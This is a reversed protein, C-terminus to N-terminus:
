LGAEKRFWKQAKKRGLSYQVIEVQLPLSRGRIKSKEPGLYPYGYNASYDGGDEEGDPQKVVDTLVNKHAEDDHDGTDDPAYFKAETIWANLTIQGGWASVLSVSELTLRVLSATSGEFDSGFSHKLELRNSGPGSGTSYILEAGAIMLLTRQSNDLWAEASRVLTIRGSSGVGEAPDQIMIPEKRVRRKPADMDRYPEVLDEVIKRQFSVFGEEANTRSVETVIDRGTMNRETDTM